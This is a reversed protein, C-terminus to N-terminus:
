LDSQISIEYMNRDQNLSLSNLTLSKIVDKKRALETFNDIFQGMSLLSKSRGTIVVSTSGIDVTDLAVDSPINSLIETMMKSFKKRLNFIRQINEIRDGAIILGSQIKEFSSMKELVEEQEERISEFNTLQVLLFIGLSALGVIVLSILAILNLIKVRKKEELTKEDTRVLLNIDVSM